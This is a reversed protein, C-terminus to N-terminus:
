STEETPDDCTLCEAGICNRGNDDHWAEPHGCPCPQESTALMDNLWDRLARADEPTLMAADTPSSVVILGVWTSGDVPMAELRHSTGYLALDDGERKATM